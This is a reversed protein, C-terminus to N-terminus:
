GYTSSNNATLKKLKEEVLDKLRKHMVFYQKGDEKKQKIPQMVGNKFKNVVEALADVSIPQSKSRLSRITDGKEIPIAKKLLIDGTDIGGDIFHITIGIPDDNFLSWELVNMGRYKPLLGMHANLIGIKPVELIEGKIIGGGTYIIVDPKILRLYSLSKDNTINRVFICPINNNKIVEKLRVAPDYGLNVLYERLYSYQNGKGSFKELVFKNLGKVLVKKLGYKAIIRKINRITCRKKVIVMSVNNGQWKLKLILIAALNNSISGSTLAIKMM